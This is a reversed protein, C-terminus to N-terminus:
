FPANDTEEVASADEQKKPISWKQVYEVPDVPKWSDGVKTMKKAKWTSVTILKDIANAFSGEFAEESATNVEIGATFLDDGLKKAGKMDTNYSGFLLRKGVEDGKVKSAVQATISYFDYAKGSKESTGTKRELKDIRAIYTGKFPEFGGRDENKEPKFGWAVDEAM